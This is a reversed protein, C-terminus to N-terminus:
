RPSLLIAPSMATFLSLNYGSIMPRGRTGEEKDSQDKLKCKRERNDGCEEVLTEMPLKNEM